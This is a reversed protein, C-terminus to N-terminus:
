GKDECWVGWVDRWRLLSRYMGGQVMSRRGSETKLLDGRVMENDMCVSGAKNIMFSAFGLGRVISGDHSAVLPEGTPNMEGL